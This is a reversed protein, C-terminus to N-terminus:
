ADTCFKRHSFRKLIPKEVLRWSIEAVLLSAPVLVGLKLTVTQSIFPMIKHIIGQVPNHFLYISYSRDGFQQFANSDLIRGALGKYGQVAGSVIWLSTIAMSLEWFVLRLFHTTTPSYLYWILFPMMPLVLSAVRNIRNILQSSNLSSLGILSGMMFGDLTGLPFMLTSLESTGKLASVIRWGMALFIGGYCATNPRQARFGFYIIFPWVLYFQMEAALSWYHTAYLVYDNLLFIKFNTAFLLNWILTEHMMPISLAAGLIASIYFAPVIRILRRRVFSRYSALFNKFRQQQCAEFLMRTILFGSIVFFIRVGLPGWPFHIGFPDPQFHEVLVGAVAITRLGNIQRYFAKSSQM